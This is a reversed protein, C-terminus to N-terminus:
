PSSTPFPITAIANHRFACARTEFSPRRARLAYGAAGLAALAIGRWDLGDISFGLAIVLGAFGCLATAFRLLSPATGEVIPAVVLIMIPSTFFIIVALGVPNFQLSAIYGISIMATALVQLIFPGLAVRPVSLPEGRLLAYSGLAIVILSTRFLTTEVAPVGNDYAARVLSPILGYLSAAIFALAIAPRVRDSM